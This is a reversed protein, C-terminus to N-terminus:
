QCAVVWGVCQCAVVLLQGAFHPLPLNVCVLNAM